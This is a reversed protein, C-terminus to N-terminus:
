LYTYVMQSLVRRKVVLACAVAGALPLEASLAANLSNYIPLCVFTTQLILFAQTLAPEIGCVKRMSQDVKRVALGGTDIIGIPRPSCGRLLSLSSNKWGRAHPVDLADVIHLTRNLNNECRYHCALNRQVKKIYRRAEISLNHTRFAEGKVLYRDLAAM